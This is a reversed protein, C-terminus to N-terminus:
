FNLFILRFSPSVRLGLIYAVKAYSPACEHGANKVSRGTTLTKVAGRVVGVIEDGM